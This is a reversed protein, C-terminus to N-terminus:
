TGPLVSTPGPVRVHSGSGSPTLAPMEGAVGTLLAQNILNADEFHPRPRQLHIRLSGERIGTAYSILIPQVIYGALTKEHPDDCM